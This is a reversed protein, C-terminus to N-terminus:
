RLKKLAFDSLMHTPAKTEPFSERVLKVIGVTMMQVAVLSVLFGGLRECATLGNEGILRKLQSAALVILLSPIWAALIIALVKPGVGFEKSYLMVTAISGPGAMGPIAIPVIFPEDKLAENPGGQPFVRRLAIIFMLIGGCLGMTTPTIQLFTLISNGFCGFLILIFLAIGMERLLIIKQRRPEFRRLMGLYVPITGLVNYIFFLSIACQIITM